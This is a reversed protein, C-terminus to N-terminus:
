RDWLLTLWRWEVTTPVWKLKAESLIGSVAISLNSAVVKSTPSGSQLYPKPSVGKLSLIPKNAKDTTQM